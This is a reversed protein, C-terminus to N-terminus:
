PGTQTPSPDAILGAFGQALNKLDQARAEQVRQAQLTEKADLQRRLDAIQVQYGQIERAHDLQMKHIIAVMSVCLSLVVAMLALVPKTIM